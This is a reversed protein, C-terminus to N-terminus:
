WSIRYANEEKIVSKEIKFGKNILANQQNQSLLGEHYYATRGSESIELCELLIKDIGCDVTDSIERLYKATIIRNNM